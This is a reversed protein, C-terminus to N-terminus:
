WVGTMPLSRRHGGPCSGRRGVGARNGYPWRRIQCSQHHVNRCYIKRDHPTGGSEGGDSNQMQYVPKRL